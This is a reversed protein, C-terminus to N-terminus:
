HYHQHTRTSATSWCMSPPPLLIAIVGYGIGCDYPEYVYTSSLLTRQTLTATYIPRLGMCLVRYLVQLKVEDYRHYIEVMGYDLADIQGCSLTSHTILHPSLTQCPPLPPSPTLQVATCSHNTHACLSTLKFYDPCLHLPM